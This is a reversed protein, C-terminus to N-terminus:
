LGDRELMRLFVEVVKPDFQIGAQERLYQRVKEHPWAKRYPRDKSLADWVDVVAFIRAALPIQEGQLGRPYGQGQWREHHCYPIDLAPRLYPIPSLLQYAYVPHRRMIEWEEETLPGPKYLISDPIGMKGIDHLLAGHRIHILKDGSIGMTQALRLTMETVRESHGETEADRLELARSWGELTTDYAILLDFNSRELNKFLAANEMAIAAQATVANLFEMWQPTPRLVERNYVELVGKVQGKAILPAGYYSVFGEEKILAATYGQLPSKERLDAIYMPQRTLAIKGARGQGLRFHEQLPRATRFGEGGQYTLTNSRPELVFVAVADVRLQAVLQRVLVGLTVELDLSSNITMDITHLAQLYELHRQTDSFLRANELAVALQSTFSQLFQVRESSFFGPQDSSLMMVGLVQGAHRLSFAALRKTQLTQLISRSQANLIENHAIDEIIIPAGSHVARNTLPLNTLEQAARRLDHTVDVPTNEQLAQHDFASLEVAKGGPPLLGVWAYSADLHQIALTCAQRAIRKPEVQRAFQRSLEYLVSWERAHQEAQSFLRAQAIVTAAHSAVTEALSIEEESYPHQEYRDLTIYGIVTDRQKLPVGLWHQIHQTGGWGGFAPHTFPKELVLPRGSRRVEAFLPDDPSFFRGEVDDPAPLGQASVLHLGNETLLFISASGYPVITRMHELLHHLIQKLNLTSTLDLAIEKLVEARRRLTKEQRYLIANQIAMGAQHGVSAVLTIDQTTFPRREPRRFLGIAGLCKERALIPVGLYAQIDLSTWYPSADPHSRYDDVLLPQRTNIVPWALSKEGRSVSKAKLEVPLNDTLYPYTIAEGDETLLALAGADADALETLLETVRELTADIDLDSIFAQALAALQRERHLANVTRQYLQVKELALAVQGGVFEAWQLEESPLSDVPTNFAILAAGLWQQNGILPIGLLSRAPFQRATTASLYPSNFVDPVFIVERKKLVAETLTTEDPQPHFQRYTDRLPGYAAGPLVSQSVEDWLTLYCGDAQWLVGLQDALTQLMETENTAQLAAKIINSLLSMRRNHIELAEVKEALGREASARQATGATFGLMIGAAVALHSCLLWLSAVPVALVFPGQGQGTYHIAITAVGLLSLMSYRRGILLPYTLLLALLFYDLRYFLLASWLQAGNFVFWSFLWSFLVASIKRSLPIQRVEPPTHPSFWTILLPFVILVGVVNVMWHTFAALGVIQYNYFPLDRLLLPHVVSLFPLIFLSFIATELLPTLLAAGGVWMWTFRVSNFPYEPIKWRKLLSYGLFIIAAHICSTPVAWLLAEGLTHGRLVLITAGSLATGAAVAPWLKTGWLWLTALGLGSIFWLSFLVYQNEGSNLASLVGYMLIVLASRKWPFTSFIEKM